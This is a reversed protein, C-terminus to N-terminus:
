MQENKLGEEENNRAIIMGEPYLDQYSYGIVFDKDSFQRNKLRTFGGQKTMKLDEKNIILTDLRKRKFKNM